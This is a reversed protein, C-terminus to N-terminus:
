KLLEESSLLALVMKLAQTASQRRVAQRDGQFRFGEARSGHAWAVGIWVSGVPKEETGGLPGAIGTTAVGIDAGALLRVGQAMEEATQSSYETFADLTEQKVRLVEHKIRNSYACVGCELVESAGSVSTILASVMGGTLSEASAAHLGKEKLARVTQQALENLEEMM